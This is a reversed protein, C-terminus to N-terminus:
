ENSELYFVAMSSYPYSVLLEMVPNLKDFFCLVNNIHKIFALRCGNIYRTNDMDPSIVHRKRRVMLRDATVQLRFLTRTTVTCNILCAVIYSSVACLTM